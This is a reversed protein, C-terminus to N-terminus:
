RQKRLTRKLHPALSVKCKKKRPMWQGPPCCLTILTNANPKRTRYSGRACKKQRLKRGKTWLSTKKKAAPKRKTKKAVFRKKPVSSPKWADMSRTAKRSLKTGMPAFMAGRQKKSLNDFPTLRATRGPVYPVHRMPPIFNKTREKQKTRKAGRAAAPWQNMPVDEPAKMQADLRQDFEVLAERQAPPLARWQKDWKAAEDWYRIGGGHGYKKKAMARGWGRMASIEPRLRWVGEPTRYSDTFDRKM